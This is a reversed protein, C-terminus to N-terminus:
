QIAVQKSNSILKLPFRYRYDIAERAIFMQTVQLTYVGPDITYAM